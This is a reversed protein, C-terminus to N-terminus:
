VGDYGLFKGHNHIALYEDVEIWSVRHLMYGMQGCIGCEGDTGGDPEYQDGRILMWCDGCVKAIGRKM